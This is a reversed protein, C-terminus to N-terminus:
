SYHKFALEPYDVLRMFNLGALLWQLQEHTIELKNIEALKPIYFKSRELRKYILIFGTKDWYLGKVKNRQRNCFLFLCQGQPNDQLQEVIQVTLSDIGCRMDIPKLRVLIKLATPFSLM